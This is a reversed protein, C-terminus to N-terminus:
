HGNLGGNPIPFSFSFTAGGDVAGEAWVRGGHRHIIRQVNALGIGSGKFEAETHLRQFVGFLKGAYKPDFGVGNDRIFIVTEGDRNPSCGIEIKAAARTSTFKLANSVLNALVQRLLAPDARVMPLPDIRWVINRGKMEAQFDKLIKQVMLDLNVQTKQMESRGMRSFALLDDILIGMRKAAQSISDLYHASKKSLSPGTDEQLLGVFALVHRVPARLDHSVSYSFAELEQNVAQLQATREIVRQELEEQSVRIQQQALKRETIDRINCQIVKKDGAQYVNCVFEVSIKRGDRTELPLHEYRVYCERQLRELMVQNSEIDRFPSLEGVTKGIMEDRSFGLLTFLFPNVDTIRGTDVDLILIGDHAAEFLRRYSLESTRITQEDPAEAEEAPQSRPAHDTEYAVGNNKTGPGAKLTTSPSANMM